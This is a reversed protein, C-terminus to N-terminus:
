AGIRYAAPVGEVCDVSCDLDKLLGDRLSYVWGHVTLSQGRAWARQVITTCAVNAVQTIVNLECLRELRDAKDV